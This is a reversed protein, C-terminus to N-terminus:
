DGTARQQRTQTARETLTSPEHQALHSPWWMRPGLDLTLAPVLISRVVLTDLLVGFAVIFGLETLSVLPLVGLVAFTAALVLGASTIVGGTVSLGRLMGRRTGLQKAEEHVRSMLFINYDIGLAVLFVFGLLPISPEIGEFGFLHEFVLVSVGLSAAFSLVVTATLVLPAVISRLLLCLIGLVVLLVLPMIVMRDRENANQIDLSSADPGGVIADAGAVAHVNDRLREITAYAADSSPDADLTAAFAVLSDTQGDIRVAAVGPTAAIAAQVADTSDINAIVTNPQSAGAPYSEAILKQGTIAEPEDRFQDANALSFDAGILGVAMVAVVAVTGIWVPRPRRDVWRGVGSWLGSAEHSESGFHPVFPWFVRRGVIVLITPLLTLMAVLASLIGLAGVPGLGATSNLDAAMLCLLGAVVTGGSALIAPGAQRLAALMAEHKDAHRRLEERYRAILLLAYDTGAGFVLVPLIGGSQGDVTVGLHRAAGYVGATATQHAFAVAILPILWLFPSRYTLLLLITVVSATAMLLTGDFGDFVSVLDHGFGAPGTAKVQLGDRDAGLVDRIDGVNESADQGNIPADAAFPIAYLVAAGNESPVPETPPTDPYLGTFTARDAEVRAMDADTLGGDRHYVIVAPETEGAPFTDLTRTVALSEASEPLWQEADNEEVDTLKGAFPSVTALIFIWAILVLWRTRRGSPIIALRAAPGRAPQPTSDTEPNRVAM